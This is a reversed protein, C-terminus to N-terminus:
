DSMLTEFLAVGAAVFLVDFALLIRMWGLTDALPAGLLAERTAVVGSLLAPTTLPFLVVSLALDRAETRVTMASFLTGAAVFGVTGLLLLAAVRGFVPGLDVHFLVAVLPLLVAEVVALFLLAAAGKGLYIAARPIPTLLLGVIANEERERAWTRGMALVGAFAVSIWLVGPAMRPASARDVYFSLSAMVVVLVAFLGTTVVLDKARLEVRLDKLMVLTAAKWVSM